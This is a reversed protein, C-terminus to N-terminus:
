AEMIIKLVKQHQEEIQEATAPKGGPIMVELFDGIDFVEGDSLVSLAYTNNLVFNIVQRLDKTNLESKKNDYTEKVIKGDLTVSALFQEQISDVHNIQFKIRKGHGGKIYEKNEDVWINMPLGSRRKRINAMSYIWSSSEIVNNEERIIENM